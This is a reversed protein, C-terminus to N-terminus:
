LSCLYLLDLDLCICYEVLVVSLLWLLDLKCICYCADERWFHGSYPFLTIQTAFGIMEFTYTFGLFYFFLQVLLQPLYMLHM